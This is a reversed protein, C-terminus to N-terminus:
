CSSNLKVAKTLGAPPLHPVTGALQKAVLGCGWPASAQEQQLALDAVDVALTHVSGLVLQELEGGPLALDRHLALHAPLGVWRAAQYLRAAQRLRSAQLLCQPAVAVWAGQKGQGPM